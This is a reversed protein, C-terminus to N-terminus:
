VEVTTIKKALIRKIKKNIQKSVSHKTFCILYILKNNNLLNFQNNTTAKTSIWQSPYAMFWVINRTTILWKSHLMSNVPLIM